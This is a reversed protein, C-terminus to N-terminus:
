QDLKEKHKPARDKRSVIVRRGPVTGIRERAIARVDKGFDYLQRKTM